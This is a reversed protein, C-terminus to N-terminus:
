TCVKYDNVKETGCRSEWGCALIDWCCWKNVTKTVQKWGNCCRDKFVGTLDGVKTGATLCAICYGNVEKKSCCENGNWVGVNIGESKCAVCTGGSKCIETGSCDGNGYCDVCTDGFRMKCCTDFSVLGINTGTEDCASCAGDKCAQGAACDGEGYCDVCTDGFRMKCCPGSGVGIAVKTGTIECAVCRGDDCVTTGALCDDNGNCSLGITGEVDYNENHVLITKGNKLSVFGHGVGDVNNFEYGKDQEGKIWSTGGAYVGVGLLMIGVLVILLVFKKKGLIRTIREGM